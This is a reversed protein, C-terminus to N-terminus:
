KSYVVWSGASFSFCNWHGAWQLTFWGLSASQVCVTGHFGSLWKSRIGSCQPPSTGEPPVAAWDGAGPLALVSILGLEPNQWMSDQSCGLVLACSRKPRERAESVGCLLNLGKVLLRGNLDWSLQESDRRAEWAPGQFWVWTNFQQPNQIVLYLVVNMATSLLVTCCSKKKKKKQQDPSRFYNKKLEKFNCCCFFVLAPMWLM